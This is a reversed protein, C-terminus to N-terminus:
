IGCPALPDRAGAPRNALAGYMKAPAGAHGSSGASARADREGYILTSSIPSWMRVAEGPPLDDSVIPVGRTVFVKWSLPVSATLPDPTLQTVPDTM